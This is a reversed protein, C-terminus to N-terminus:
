INEQMGGLYCLGDRRGEKKQVCRAVDLLSFLYKLVIRSIGRHHGLGSVALGTVKRGYM